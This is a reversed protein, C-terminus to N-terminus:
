SLCLVRMRFTVSEFGSSQLGSQVKLMQNNDELMDREREREIRGSEANMLMIVNM